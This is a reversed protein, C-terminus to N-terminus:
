VLKAAAGTRIDRNKMAVESVEPSLVSEKVRPLPSVMKLPLAAM